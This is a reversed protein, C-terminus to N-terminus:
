CLMNKFKLYEPKNELIDEIYAVMLLQILFLQHSHIQALLEANLEPEAHSDAEGLERLLFISAETSFTTSFYIILM